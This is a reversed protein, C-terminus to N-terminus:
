RFNYNPNTVQCDFVIATYIPRGRLYKRGNGRSHNRMRGGSIQTASGGGDLNLAETAGLMIFTAALEELTMGADMDSRGDCVVSWVFDKNIGIAARPFRGKTIDDDFQKAGRSIGETDKNIDVVHGQRVLMPGAQLLSYPKSPFEKRYDLFLDSNVDIYASGRMGEWPNLVPTTEQKNGEIWLDGLIESTKSLFFGGVMAEQVDNDECWDLLRVGESFSVLRPAMTKRDYRVIHITTKHGSYLDVELTRRHIKQRKATSQQTLM